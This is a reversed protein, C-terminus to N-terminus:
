FSHRATSYEAFGADQIVFTGIATAPNSYLQSGTIRWGVSNIYNIIAALSEKAVSFQGPIWYLMSSQHVSPEFSNTLAGAEWVQSLFVEYRSMFPEVQHTNAVTIIGSAGSTAVTSETKAFFTAADINKSVLPQSTGSLYPVRSYYPTTTLIKGMAGMTSATLDGYSTGNPGASAAELTFLQPQQFSSTSYEAHDVRAQYSARVVGVVHTQTIPKFVVSTSSLSIDFSSLGGVPVRFYDIDLQQTEIYWPGPFAGSIGGSAATAGATQFNADLIPSQLIQTTQPSAM